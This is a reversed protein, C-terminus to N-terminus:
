HEGNDVPRAMSVPTRADLAAQIVLEMVEREAASEMRRAYKPLLGAEVAKDIAAKLMDYTVKM